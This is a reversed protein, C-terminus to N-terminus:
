RLMRPNFGRQGGATATAGGAQRVGTIVTEGETLGAIIEAQIRNTVGVTVERTELGGNKTQIQISAKRTGSQQRREERTPRERPEANANESRAGPRAFTLSSMPVLLVDKAQASIFFVQTSMQTMLVRQENPVDFLANYLVVNNLV